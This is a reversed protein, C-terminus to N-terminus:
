RTGAPPAEETEILASGPDNRHERYRAILKRVRPQNPDLELSRHWHELAAARLDMRENEELFKLMKISGLGAHARPLKPDCSLAMTYATEAAGFNRERFLCYGLAEHAIGLNSDMRIAQNLAQRAMSLRDQNMYTRALNILVLPQQTDRELSRKFARIAEYYKKQRDLAVGLNVYAQPRDADIEIARRFREEAQQWSGSEQYCVGLNLQADFHSPNIDIAHLYAQIAETIRDSLYYLQGLSFTDDFSFPNHRVAKVFAEIARDYRGTRRHIQGIHSYAVAMKPALAAAAEFETLAADLDHADLYAEGRNVHHTARIENIPRCGTMTIAFLLFGVSALGIGNHRILRRVQTVPRASEFPVLVGAEEVATRPSDTCYGAATTSRRVPSRFRFSITTKRTM